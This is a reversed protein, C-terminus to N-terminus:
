KLNKLFPSLAREFKPLYHVVFENMTDWDAENFMSVGIKEIKIRM